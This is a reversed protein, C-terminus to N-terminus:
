TKRMEVSITNDGIAGVDTFGDVSIKVVPMFQGESDKYDTLDAVARINDGKLQDLKDATGRIVVDISESIIEAEYGEAVNTCSINKVKFTRTELGVVEVTVKAESVGTLNKIENDIPITYSETFTSEFDTLDITNLVIKNMGSLVASDGALTVSEPEIKIKVNEKTAGAGEIVEVNLPIEKVLLLPLSATVVDDSFSLGATSCENGEEDMLVYGTDVKYTSEVNEKGFTVWAYSIDKLYSDPGTVTITSPEFIPTEATYGEALSGDFSGRVQIVKTNLPSVFFNVTEPTKHVVSVGSIDADDPYQVYYQQSTYTSRSLKSVDVNATLDSSDWSAIIRRPGTLQVTVATTDLDTVVMNKSDRLTDEGVLQVPVNRFVQTYEDAQVSTVYVWITLSALLSIIMWFTKSEYIKSLQIKKKKM